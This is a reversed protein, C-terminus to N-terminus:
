RISSGKAGAEQSVDPLGPLGDEECGFDPPSELRLSARQLRPDITNAFDECTKPNLRVLAAIECRTLAVGSGLLGQIATGPDARFSRRFEEDTVLRGIIWEVNKQAM